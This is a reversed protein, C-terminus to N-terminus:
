EAPPASSSPMQTRAREEALGFLASLRSMEALDDAPLRRALERRIELATTTKGVERDCLADQVAIDIEEAKRQAPSRHDTRFKDRLEDVADEPSAYPHGHASMCTRWEGVEAAHRPDARAREDLQLNLEQPLYSIRAWTDLDGYLTVYAQAGCGQRPYRFSAGRPSVLEGMDAADGFLARRSAEDGAAGPEGGGPGGSLGYGHERLHDLSITSGEAAEPNWAEAAGDWRFGAASMCRRTLEVEAVDIRHRREPYGGAQTILDVTAASPAGPPETGPREGCGALVGAAVAAALLAVGRTRM